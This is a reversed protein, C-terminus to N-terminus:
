KFLYRFKKEQHKFIFLSAVVCGFVCLLLMEGLCCWVVFRAIDTVIKGDDGVVVPLMNKPLKCTVTRVLCLPVTSM